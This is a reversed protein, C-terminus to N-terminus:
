RKTYTYTVYGDVWYTRDVLKPKIIRFVKKIKFGDVTTSFGPKDKLSQIAEQALLVTSYIGIDKREYHNDLKHKHSVKYYFRM